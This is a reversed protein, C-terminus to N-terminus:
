LSRSSTLHRSLHEIADSVSATCREDGVVLVAGGIMHPAAKQVLGVSRGAISTLMRSVADVVIGANGSPTSLVADSLVGRKKLEVELSRKLVRRSKGPNTRLLLAIAADCYGQVDTEPSAICCEVLARAIMASTTKM